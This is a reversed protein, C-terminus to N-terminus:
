YLILDEKSYKAYLDWRMGNGEQWYRQLFQLVISCNGLGHSMMSSMRDTIFVRQEETTAECGAALLPWLLPANVRSDANIRQFWLIMTEVTVAVAPHDRPLGRVRKYLFLLTANIFLNHSCEADSPAYTETLLLCTADDRLGLLREELLQAQRSRDIVPARSEAGESIDCIVRLTNVLEASLGTTADVEGSGPMFQLLNQYTAVKLRQRSTQHLNSVRDMLLLQMLWRMSMCWLEDPQHPMAVREVTRLAGNLHQRYASTDGACLCTAALMLTTALTESGTTSTTLASRLSSLTRVTAEIGAIRARHCNHLRFYHSSSAALIAGLMCRQTEVIPIVLRLFAAPELPFYIAVTQRIFFHLFFRHSGSQIDPFSKPQYITLVPSRSEPITSPSPTVLHSPSPLAASSPTHVTLTSTENTTTILVPSGLPSKPSMMLSSCRTSSQSAPSSKIKARKIEVQRVRLEYFCSRPCKACRSCHPRKEDCKARKRRCESCGNGTRARRRREM